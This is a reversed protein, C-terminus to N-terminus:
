LVIVVGDIQQALRTLRSLFQRVQPRAIENGGFTDAATDIVVLQAGCSLIENILQEFLPTLEGDGNAAFKMLINDEGVRSACKFNELDGFDINLKQNIADQRRHLEGVDDECFFGYTKCPRVHLSLFPKEAAVCTMLQQALLSKGTGGDGYVITTSRWPIWGEILWEREPVPKGAFAVMDITNLRTIDCDDISARM